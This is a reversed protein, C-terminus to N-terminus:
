RNCDSGFLSKLENLKCKQLNKKWNDRGNSISVEFNLSQMTRHIMKCDKDANAINGRTTKNIVFCQRVNPVSLDYCGNTEKM